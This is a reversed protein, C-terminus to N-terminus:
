PRMRMSWPSPLRQNQSSFSATAAPHRFAARYPWRWSSLGRTMAHLGDDFPAPHGLYRNRFVQERRKKLHDVRRRSLIM